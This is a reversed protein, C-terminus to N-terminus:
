GFRTPYHENLTNLYYGVAEEATGKAFYSKYSEYGGHEWADKDPVYQGKSCSYGFLFTMEFPSGNKIQMGTTDFFEMPLTTFAVDGISIINLEYDKTPELKSNTVIANAHYITEIGLTQAYAATYYNGNKHTKHFAQVKKANAIQEEDYYYASKGTVNIRKNQILGTKVKTFDESEYLDVVYAAVAKGLKVAKTWGSAKVVNESNIRSFSALNGCAGQSFVSLVGLNAEVQERLPGPFDPNLITGKDGASDAHTQWNIMLIDKKGERVFKVLQIEEDADTEHSVIKSDYNGTFGDYLSGDELFYRRVFTLNVTETRGIFMEAPALDETAEQISDMAYPILINNRWDEAAQEKSGYSLQNHNHTGAVTIYAPDIGLKSEAAVRLMDCVGYSNKPGNDSMGGWSLDTTIHYYMEGEEDRFAITILELRGEKGTSWGDDMPIPGEPTIDKKSYGVELVREPKNLGPDETSTQPQGTPGTEDGCAFLSIVMLIALAISIIKKM